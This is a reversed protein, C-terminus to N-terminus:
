SIAEERLAATIIREIVASTSGAEILPLVEVRGGVERVARAEPLPVDAYDGGKVHV